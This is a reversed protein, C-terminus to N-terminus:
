PVELLEDPGAHEAWVRVDVDDTDLEAPRQLVDDREARARDIAHAVALVRLRPEDRAAEGLDRTVAEGFACIRQRDGPQRAEAVEDRRARALVRPVAGDALEERAADRERRDGLADPTLDGFADRRRWRGVERGLGLAHRHRDGLLRVEDERLSLRDALRHAVEHLPLAALLHRPRERLDRPEE